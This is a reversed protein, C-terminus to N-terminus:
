RKRPKVTVLIKPPLSHSDFGGSVTQRGRGSKFDPRGVLVAEGGSILDNSSSVNSSRRFSELRPKHVVRFEGRRVTVGNRDFFELLDIAIKRGSQLRDRLLSTMVKGGDAEAAMQDLIEAVEAVTQRLFFQDESVENLKGMKALTKLLRRVRAETLSLIHSIDRAKPPRFRETGALLPMIRLWDNEDQPSLKITHSSLSIWAGDLAILGQKALKQLLSSFASAPLRLSLSERLREFGIGPATQNEAHFAELAAVLDSILKEWVASSVAFVTNQTPLVTVGLNETIAETQAASLSRDRAFGSLDVHFPSRNLLGDLSRQPDLIAHDHLQAIRIPTRRRREPARLDLFRGGGITRRASADRIIFRDGSSAAIPRDLVLQVLGQEGPVIPGDALLVIRAGVEVAAHHLRVPMWQTLPQRETRLLRLSSDIRNTPAHVVPDLVMDGRSISEKRIDSGALNLACRDGAVGSQAARNQSHISRIHGRLGSPSIVVHDGTTVSGSLVTGTVITGSGSLTFCRDISLRFRGKGCSAVLEQEAEIVAVRLEDIGEGTKNSIEVISASALTTEKLLERIESKVHERRARDVTDIKTLAVIGHSVGLLDIISLHELTQPKLGDNAAVVLLVFDIGSAGALMNHIFREHGPVDIFGLVSGDPTELYAFGLDISIGRSKEEKLRDTDTGTLARVLATKGHDIHGATGVIM